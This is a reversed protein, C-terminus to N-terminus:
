SELLFHHARIVYVVIDLPTPPVVLREIAYLIRFVNHM